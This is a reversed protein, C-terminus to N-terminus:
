HLVIVTRTEESSSSVLLVYYIGAPVRNGSTDKQNWLLNHNQMGPLEEAITNVLHVSIDYIRVTSVGAESTMFDISVSGRAPNPFVSFYNDIEIDQSIIGTDFQSDSHLSNYSEFAPPNLVVNGLIPTTNPYIYKKFNVKVSGDSTMITPFISRIRTGYWKKELEDYWQDGTSILVPPFSQSTNYADYITVYLEIDEVYVTDESSIEDEPPPIVKRWGLWGYRDYDATPNYPDPYNYELTTICTENVEGSVETEEFDYVIQDLFISGQYDVIYVHLVKGIQDCMWVGGYYACRCNSPNLNVEDLLEAEWLSQPLTIYHYIYENTPVLYDYYGVLTHSRSDQDSVERSYGQIPEHPNIFTFTTERNDSGGTSWAPAITSADADLGNGALDTAFHSGIVLEVIQNGVYGPPKEGSANYIAYECEGNANYCSPDLVFNLVSFWNVTSDPGTFM